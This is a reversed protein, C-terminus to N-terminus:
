SVIGIGKPKIQESRCDTQIQRLKTLTEESIVVVVQDGGNNQYVSLNECACREAAALSKVENEHQTLTYENLLRGDKSCVQINFESRTETAARKKAKARM